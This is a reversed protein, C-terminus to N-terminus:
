VRRDLVFDALSVLADVHTSDPLQRLGSKAEEVFETARRTCYSLIDRERIMKLVVAKKDADGRSVILDQLEKRERPPLERLLKIVPLTLKGKELDTGLSKGM